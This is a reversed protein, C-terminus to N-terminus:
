RRPAGDREGRLQAMGQEANLATRVHHMPVGLEVLTIAVAPQIGVITADAGLLRVMAVLRALVRAVFSDVVALGSIDILAGTAHVAAVQQTVEHEIHEVTTDDLDGQLTILLDSGMRLIPVRDHM